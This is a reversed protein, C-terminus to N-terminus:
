DKRAPAQAPPPGGPPASDGEFSVGIAGLAAAPDAIPGTSYVITDGWERAATVCMQMQDPTLRGMGSMCNANQVVEGNKLQMVFSTRGHQTITIRDPRPHGNALTTFQLLRDSGIREYAGKGDAWGQRCAGIWRFDCESKPSVYLKCEPTIECLKTQQASASAALLLLTAALLVARRGQIGAQAPIVAALAHIGAQAPIVAEPAPLGTLQLM